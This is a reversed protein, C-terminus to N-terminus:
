GYLFAAGVTYNSLIRIVGPVGSMAIGYGLYNQPRIHEWFLAVTLGAIAILVMLAAFLFLTLGWQFVMPMKQLAKPMKVELMRRAGWVLARGFPKASSRSPQWVGFPRNQTLVVAGAVAGRAAAFSSPGRELPKRV